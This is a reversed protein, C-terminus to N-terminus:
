DATEKRRWNYSREIKAIRIEYGEYWREKGEHRAAKHELHTRWQTIAEESEWYSITIGFGDAGRSSEIGLFGPIKSALMQM